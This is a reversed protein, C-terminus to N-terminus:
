QTVDMLALKGRNGEIKLIILEAKHDGNLDRGFVQDAEYFNGPLQKKLTDGTNFGRESLFQIHVNKESVVMLDKWGDGNFDATLQGFEPMRLHRLNLIWKIEMPGGPLTKFTSDAQQIHLDLLFTIKMKGTTAVRLLQFYSLKFGFSAIDILNDSNLDQFPRSLFFDEENEPLVFGSLTQSVAPKDDFSLPEPANFIKISTRIKKLDRLKEIDDDEINLSLLELRSDGNLDLLLGNLSIPVFDFSLIPQDDANSSSDLSSYWIWRQNGRTFVLEDEGDGNVDMTEPLPLRLTRSSSGQRGDGYMADLFPIFYTGQHDCNYLTIGSLGPVLWLHHGRCTWMFPFENGSFIVDTSAQLRNVRVWGGTAFELIELTNKSTWLYLRRDLQIASLFGDELVREETEVFGQERNLWTRLTFSKFSTDEYLGRLSGDQYYTSFSGITETKMIVATLDQRGDLNLDCWDMQLPLGHLDITKNEVSLSAYLFFVLYM